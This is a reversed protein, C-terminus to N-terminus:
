LKNYMEPHGQVNMELDGRIVLVTPAKSPNASLGAM